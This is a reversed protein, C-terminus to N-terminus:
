PRASAPIRRRRMRFASHGSLNKLSSARHDRTQKFHLRVVYYERAARRLRVRERYQSNYPSAAIGRSAQMHQIRGARMCGDNLVHLQKRRFPGLDLRQRHAIALHVAGRERFKQARTCCEDRHLGDAALCSDNPIRPFHRADYALWGSRLSPYHQMNVGRLRREGLLYRARMETGIKQSKVTRLDPRRAPDARENRM